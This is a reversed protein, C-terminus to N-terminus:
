WIANLSHSTLLVHCSSKLIVSIHIFHLKSDGSPICSHKHWIQTEVDRYLFVKTLIMHFPLM